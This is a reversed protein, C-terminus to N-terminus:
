YRRQLISAVAELPIAFPNQTKRALAKRIFAHSPDGRSATECTAPPPGRHPVSMYEISYQYELETNNHAPSTVSFVLQPTHLLIYFVLFSVKTTHLM